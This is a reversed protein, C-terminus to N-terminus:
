RDPPLAAGHRLVADAAETYRGNAEHLILGPALRMPSGVGKRAHIIVRKADKGPGAWLPFIVIDGAGGSLQALVADLRDARHIFNLTGKMRAMTLACRIWAALDAEGELNALAKSTNPSPTATGAELYPPNAIVHSFSGPELRQPPRLLDGHMVLVRGSLENLVVNDGALRVMTRDSDISTVRCDAVRRALCLSAAGAGCVIDLIHDGPQAVISAALLVPDIAARYGDVPQRFKVRGGLLMDESVLLAEVAENM